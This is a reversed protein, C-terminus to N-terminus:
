IIIWNTNNSMVEIADYQILEQTLEGDITQSSTTALTILGTGSNKITYKAGSAGVATPLIVTFTGSTCDIISDPSAITYNATIAKYTDAQPSGITAIINGTTAISFAVTVSYISSHIISLPIIQSGTNDIIQIVPFAGFNHALTVSTQGTFAISKYANISPPLDNFFDSLNEPKNLIYAPDLNNGENWDSQTVADNSLSDLKDKDVQSFNVDTLSKGTVKDVKNAYLETFNSEAKVQSDRLTDGLGDNPTSYNIHQQAM